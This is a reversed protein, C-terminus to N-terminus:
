ELGTVDTHETVSRDIADLVLALAYGGICILCVGAVIAAIIYLLTM